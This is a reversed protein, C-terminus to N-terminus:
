LKRNKPRHFFNHTDRRTEGDIRKGKEQGADVERRAVVVVLRQPTEDIEDM